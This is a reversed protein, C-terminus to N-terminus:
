EFSQILDRKKKKILFGNSPFPQIMYYRIIDKAPKRAPSCYSCLARMEKKTVKWKKRIHM